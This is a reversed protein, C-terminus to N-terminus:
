LIQFLVEGGVGYILAEVDTIIGITTSLILFGNQHNTLGSRNQLEKVTLYIRNKSSSIRKLKRIAPQSRYYSLVVTVLKYNYLHFSSIYGLRLLLSLIILNQKSRLVFINSLKARSGNNIRALMDSVLDLVM